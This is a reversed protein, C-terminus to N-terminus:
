AAKAKMLADAGRLEEQLSWPALELGNPWALAGSEIFARAFYAPDALPQTLETGRAIIDAASWLGHSGDSFVLEIRDGGRVSISTLKIM